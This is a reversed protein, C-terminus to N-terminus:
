GLKNTSVVLKNTPVVSKESLVEIKSMRLSPSVVNQENGAGEENVCKGPKNTSVDGPDELSVVKSVKSSPSVERPELSMMGDIEEFECLGPKNTSVAALGDFKEVKESANQVERENVIVVSINSVDLACNEVSVCKKVNGANGFIKKEDLSKESCDLAKYLFVASPSNSNLSEISGDNKDFEVLRCDVVSSPEECEFLERLNFSEEM